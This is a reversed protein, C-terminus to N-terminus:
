HGRRDIRYIRILPRGDSDAGTAAVHDATWSTTRLTSFPAPVIGLFRGDSTFVSLRPSAGANSYVWINGVGDEVMADWLPYTDPIDAKRAVARLETNHGTYLQFLSDRVGAPAEAPIASRNFMGLTDSGTRTHMFAFSATSGYLVSGDRLMLYGIYPQLPISYTAMGGHAQPVNWKKSAAVHNRKFSDVRAGVKDFAIWQGNEGPSGMAMTHFRGRTDVLTQGGGFCCTTAFSRVVKGDLTMVTGRSLRNDHIYLTDHAATIQPQMYEGPGEGTRGLQRVFSGHADFLTLAAPKQDVVIVRGDSLLLVGEPDVLEGPAGDAPQVTRELVLKWGNTDVWGSPGSNTVRVIHHNVTDTVPRALRSQAGLQHAAVAVVTAALATTRHM